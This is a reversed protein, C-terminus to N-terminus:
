KLIVKSTYSHQGVTCKLFYSGVSIYSLNLQTNSSTTIQNFLIEGNLNILQISISEQEPKSFKITILGDTPNPYILIDQESSISPIGNPNNEDAGKRWLISGAIGCSLINEAIFWNSEDLFDAYIWNHIYTISDLAINSITQSPLHIHLLGNDHFSYATETNIMQLKENYNMAFNANVSNWNLGANATYFFASDVRITGHVEDFFHTQAVSLNEYVTWLTTWTSGGDTTKKLFLNGAYNATDVLQTVLAIATDTNFFQLNRIGCNAQLLHTTTSHTIFNALKFSDSSNDYLVVENMNRTAMKNYNSMGIGVLVSDWSNGNDTSKYIWRDYFGITAKIFNALLTNPGAYQIDTFQGNRQLKPIWTNGQNITTLLTDYHSIAGTQTNYFDMAFTAAHSNNIQQLQAFSVLISLNLGFILIFQKM